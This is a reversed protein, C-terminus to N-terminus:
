ETCYLRIDGFNTDSIRVAIEPSLDRRSNLVMANDDHLVSM